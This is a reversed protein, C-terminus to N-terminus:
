CSLTLVDFINCCSPQCAPVACAACCHAAKLPFTLTLSLAMVHMIHTIVFLADSRDEGEGWGRIACACNM